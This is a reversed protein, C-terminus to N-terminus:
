LCSRQEYNNINNQLTQFIAHSVPTYSYSNIEQAMHNRSEYGELRKIRQLTNIKTNIKKCITNGVPVITVM